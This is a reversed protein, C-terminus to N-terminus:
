GNKKGGSQTRFKEAAERCTICGGPKAYLTIRGEACTRCADSGWVVFEERADEQMDKPEWSTWLKCVQCLVQRHTKLMKEAWARRQIYGKPEDPHRQCCDQAKRKSVTRHKQAM